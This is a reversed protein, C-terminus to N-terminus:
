TAKPWSRPAASLRMEQARQAIIIWVGAGHHRWWSEDGKITGVGIPSVESVVREPCSSFDELGHESALSEEERRAAKGGVAQFGPRLDLPSAVLPEDGLVFGGGIATAPGPGPELNLKAILFPNRGPHSRASVESRPLGSDV